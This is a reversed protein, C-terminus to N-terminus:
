THQRRTSRQRRARARAKELAIYGGEEFRLRRRADREATLFGLAEDDTFELPPGLEMLQDLDDFYTVRSVNRIETTLEARLKATEALVPDGPKFTRVSM